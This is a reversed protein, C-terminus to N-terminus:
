DVQIGGSSGLGFHARQLSCQCDRVGHFSEDRYLIFGKLTMGPHTMTSLLTELSVFIPLLTLWDVTESSATHGQQDQALLVMTCLLLRTQKFVHVLTKPACREPTDDVTGDAKKAYGTPSLDTDYLFVCTWSYPYLLIAYADFQDSVWSIIARM